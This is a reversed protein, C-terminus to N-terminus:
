NGGLLINVVQDMNSNHARLLERNRHMDNFGMEALEGLLKMEPDESRVRLQVPLPDCLIVEDNQDFPLFHAQIVNVHPPVHPVTLMVSIDTQAGPALNNGTEVMFASNSNVPVNFPNNDLAMFMLCTCARGGCNRVRWTVFVEEGPVFEPALPSAFLVQLAPVEPLVEAETTPTPTTIATTTTQTDIANYTQPTTHSTTEDMLAFSQAYDDVPIHQQQQQQQQQQHQHQDQDLHTCTSSSAFDSCPANVIQDQSAHAFDDGYLSCDNDFDQPLAYLGHHLQPATTNEGLLLPTTVDDDNDPVRNEQGSGSVDVADDDDDNDDSDSDDSDDSDSDDSDSESDDDLFDDNDNDGLKQHPATSPLNADNTTVPAVPAPHSPPSFMLLSSISGAEPGISMDLLTSQSMM